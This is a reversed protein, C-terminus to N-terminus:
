LDGRLKSKPTPLDITENFGANNLINYFQEIFNHLNERTGKAGIAGIYNKFYYDYFSSNHYTDQGKYNYCIQELAEKTFLNLIRKSYIKDRDCENVLAQLTEELMKDDYSSHQLLYSLDYLDKFRPRVITQHLKWAIQLSLPTTYPITFPEGFIPTYLLPVPKVDIDLNFSVDLLCLEDSFCDDCDNGIFYMLDTNVTPFDDAMAYDIGRWFANESFSRFKVGDDLKTETVKIMWDTFIKNAEDVTIKNMYVWDIDDVDRMETSPMYQRTILSGKLMFPLDYLVARKLFAEFAVVDSNIFDHNSNNITDWIYNSM